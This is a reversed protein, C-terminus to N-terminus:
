FRRNEGSKIAGTYVHRLHRVKKLTGWMKFYWFFTREDLVKQAM